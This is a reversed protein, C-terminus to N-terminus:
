HVTTVVPQKLKEIVRELTAITEQATGVKQELTAISTKQGEILVRAENAFTDGDVQGKIKLYKDQLQSYAQGQTILQKQAESQAKAAAVEVQAKAKDSKFKSYLSVIASTGALISGGTAIPNKNMQELLMGAAGGWSTTLTKVGAQMSAMFGDLAEHFPDIKLFWVSFLSLGVTVGIVIALLTYSRKPQAETM